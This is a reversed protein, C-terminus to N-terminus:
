GTSRRKCILALRRARPGSNVEQVNEIDYHIGRDDLMDWGETLGKPAAEARIRFETKWEGGQVNYGIDGETPSPSDKRTAWVVHPIPPGDLRQGGPDMEGTPQPEQLVIRRNGEM